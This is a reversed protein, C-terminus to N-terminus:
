LGDPTRLGPDRATKAASSGPREEPRSLASVGEVVITEPVRIGNKREVPLPERM